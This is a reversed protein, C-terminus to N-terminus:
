NVIKCKCHYISLGAIDIARLQSGHVMKAIHAHAVVHKQGFRQFLIARAKEYGEEANSIISCNKIAEKARGTCLQILYALKSEADSVRRAVNVEFNNVFIWYNLSDGDFLLERKPMEFGQQISNAMLQIAERQQKLVEQM